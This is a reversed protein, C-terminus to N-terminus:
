DLLKNNGDIEGHLGSKQQEGFIRLRNILEFNGIATDNQKERASKFQQHQAYNKEGDAGSPPKIRNIWDVFLKRSLKAPSNNVCWIRAKEYEIRIPVHRYAINQELLELFEDDINKAAASTKKKVAAEATKEEELSSSTSSSSPPNPKRKNETLNGNPEANPKNKNYFKRQRGANSQRELEDKVMRRNFLVGREDKSAVGYSLLKELTQELSQKDLGLIRALVETPM